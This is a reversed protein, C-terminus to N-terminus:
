SQEWVEKSIYVIVAWESIIELMSKYLHGNVSFFIKVLCMEKSDSEGGLAKLNRLIVAFYPFSVTFTTIIHLM